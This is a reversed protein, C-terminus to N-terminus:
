PSINPSSVAYNCGNTTHCNQGPPVSKCKIKDDSECVPDKNGINELWAYIVYSQERPNTVYLYKGNPSPDKPLAAMYPQEVPGWRKGWEIPMGEFTIKYEISPPYSENDQYYIELAKQVQSLDSMRKADNAKRIKGIPDIMTILGGAIISLMGIVVMLEVLTFGKQFKKTM